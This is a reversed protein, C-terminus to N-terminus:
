RRDPGREPRLGAEILLSRLEPPHTAARWDWRAIKPGLARLRNERRKEALLVESPTRGGAFRPELYKAAGDFEGIVARDPWWFDVLGVLGARDVFRQQLVPPPFGLQHLVVRSLSEGPSGSLPDSFELARLVRPRARVPALREVLIRFLPRSEIPGDAGFAWDLAVVADAFPVSACYEVLTRAMGTIRFGDREVIGIDFVETAHRQFAGEKRSGSASTALVHIRTPLPRIRPVGWIVAATEHSLVPRSPSADTAAIARIRYQDDQDLTQWVTADIYAGRHLRVYDGRRAAHRYSRDDAGVNRVASILTYDSGTAIPDM